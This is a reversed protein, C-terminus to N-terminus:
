KVFNKEFERLQSQFKENWEHEDNLKFRNQYSYSSKSKNFVRRITTNIEKDSAFIKDKMEDNLIKQLEDINEIWYYEKNMIIKLSDDEFKKNQDIVNSIKLLVNIQRRNTVNKSRCNWAFHKIKECSYCKKEDKRNNKEKKRHEIVNIKMSTIEDDHSKEKFNEDRRKILEEHHIDAKERFRKEFREKLIRKYWNDDINIAAIILADLSSYQVDKKM